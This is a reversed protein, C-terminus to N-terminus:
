PGAELQSALEVLYDSSACRRDIPSACEIDLSYAAGNEEWTITRVGENVTDYGAFGRVTVTPTTDGLDEPPEVFATTGHLYIAVQEDRYSAGYWLRETTLVVDDFRSPLLLVPVETAELDGPNMEVPQPLNEHSSTCAVLLGLWLGGVRLGRNM